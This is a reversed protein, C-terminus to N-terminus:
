EILDKLNPSPPVGSLLTESRSPAWARWKLYKALGSLLGQMNGYIREVPEDSFASVKKTAEDVLSSLSDDSEELSKIKGLSLQTSRAVNELLIKKDQPKLRLFDDRFLRGLELLRPINIGTDIGMAECMVVFDETSVLGSFLHEFHYYRGTGGIFTGDIINAPQGGTSSLTTEFRNMGALLAALYNAMGMGRSTHFHALHYKPDAWKGMISKDLIMRFYQYVRAPDASGDHDAQEIYDAGLDLYTKSFEVAKNLDTIRNGEIPSGWITSVTGCMKMGAEHAMKTCRETMEWYDGLSMGSNVKHHAEDTSVMQLLYDPGTGHKAKYDLARQVAKENITITCITVDGGNQKLRSGVRESNLLRTLLEEVDKFQPLYKPHGFNSVEVHKFGALILDELLQLKERVPFYHELVQLGDRVTIDGIEVKRPLAMGRDKDPM